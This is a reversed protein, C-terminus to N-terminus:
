NNLAGDDVWCAIIAIEEPSLSGTKPMNGSQTRERIMSAGAQVESLNNYNPLSSNSGDHCGFIACSNAIIPQIDTAYSAKSMVLQFIVVECDNVDTITIDYNGPGVLFEASAQAPETGLQYQYPEVGNTATIIITGNSTECDAKTSTALASVNNLSVVQVMNESLCDNIDIVSVVYEGAALGSFQPTDQATGGNLTYNYPPKGGTATITITGASLGCATGVVSTTFALDSQACDVPPEVSNEQCGPFFSIALFAILIRNM